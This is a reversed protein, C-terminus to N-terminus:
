IRAKEAKVMFRISFRTGGTGKMEIRGGLQHEALVKVLDLGLSETTGFDFEEPIGMGNDSVTLEIENESIEQLVIQIEGEREDPFAHKLCNSVLENIILGCPIAYDLALSLDNTKIKMSIIEPNIGYSIFLNNILAWLYGDFDINAFDESQYLTEHILAMSRIREQSERFMDAYQQDKITDSQLRLLSTIVQMNNKVRHHIERLLIEKEKLAANIQEEALKKETIDRALNERMRNFATSLQDLEDPKKTNPKRDLHLPQEMSEFRISEVFSAMYFIHKGVLLYFIIFIFLSVLFTKITQIGLIVLVRDLIRAYVGKLSAVVHLEGLHVDQGNYDYVLPITQEIISESQPTGIAQLVETGKRVEIFQMDPLRMIGELQIHLLEDDTVWLSNTISHLYSSQVQRLSSHILEVDRDYDLYLQLGTGVFTIVSSFLLIYLIFRRGIGSRLGPIKKIFELM